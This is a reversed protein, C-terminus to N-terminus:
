CRVNHVCTHGAMRYAPMSTLMTIGGACDASRITCLHTQGNQIYANSHFHHHCLRAMRYAPMSTSTTIGGACDAGRMTCLDPKAMRNQSVNTHLCQPPPLPGGQVTLGACQPWHPSPPGPGRGCSRWWQRCTGARWLHQEPAAQHSHQVKVAVPTMILLLCTRKTQVHHLDFQLM